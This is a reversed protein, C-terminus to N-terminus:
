FKYDRDSCMREVADKAEKLGVGYYQRYEKIANIKKGDDWLDHIMNRISEDGSMIREHEANRAAIIELVNTNMLDDKLGMQEKMIELLMFYEDASFDKTVRLWLPTDDTM